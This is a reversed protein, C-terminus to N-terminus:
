ICPEVVLSLSTDCPVRWITFSFFDVVEYKATDVLEGGVVSHLVVREIKVTIIMLKYYRM